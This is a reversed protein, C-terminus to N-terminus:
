CMETSRAKEDPKGIRGDAIRRAPSQQGPEGLIMAAIENAPKDDIMKCDVMGLMERLMKFRAQPHVKTVLDAPNREVPM